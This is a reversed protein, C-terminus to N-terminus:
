ALNGGSLPWIWQWRLVTASILAMRKPQAKPGPEGREVPKDFQRSGAFTEQSWPVPLTM